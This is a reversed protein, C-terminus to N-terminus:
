AKYKGNYKDTAIRVSFLSFLKFKTNDRLSERLLYTTRKNFVMKQFHKDKRAFISLKYYPLLLSFTVLDIDIIKKKTLRQQKSNM